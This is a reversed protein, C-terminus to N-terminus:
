LPAGVAKYFAIKKQIIKTRIATYAREASILNQQATVVDSFEILGNEYKKQILSVANHMNQLARYQNQASKVAELYANQADKIEAVAAIVAQKYNELAEDKIYKQLRVNNQLSNWDLLPLSVLPAYNYTQSSSRILKSGGQAAYGWLGSISVNPYLEAVAAGVLANQAILNQEAAAVDPRLRVVKAPFETLNHAKNSPAASIRHAGDTKINLETPLVGIITALANRYSEVAAKYTPIQARTNELLYQAESYATDDTLGSDYKAKVTAFIDQQLRTNKEALRLNEAGELLNFYNAAIEAAVALRVNELTYKLAKLNARDAEIQRRNKGWLDVEWTADFGTTYYHSDAALGVNKSQKEYNYGGQASIQPLAAVKTMQLQARAQKIRAIATKIDTSNQLGKEVLEALQSDSFDIYWKQPLPKQTSINLTQAITADTYLQPEKYDEGVNCSVCIAWGISIYIIKRM